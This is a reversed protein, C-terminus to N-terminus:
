RIIQGLVTATSAARNELESRQSDPIHSAFQELADDRNDGAAQDAHKAVQDRRRQPRSRLILTERPSDDQHRLALTARQTTQEGTRRTVQDLDVHQLLARSYQLNRPWRVEIMQVLPNRESVYGDSGRALMEQHQFLKRGIRLGAGVLKFFPQRPNSRLKISEISLNNPNIPMSLVRVCSGRFRARRAAV